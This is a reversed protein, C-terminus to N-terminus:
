RMLSVNRPPRSVQAGKPLEISVLFCNVLNIELLGLSRRNAICIALSHFVLFANGKKLLPNFSESLLTTIAEAAPM